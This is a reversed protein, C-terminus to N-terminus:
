IEPVPLRALLAAAGGSSLTERFCIDSEAEPVPLRVISTCLGGFWLSSELLKVNITYRHLLHAPKMVELADDLAPYDIFRDINQFILEFTYLSYHEVVGIDFGTMIKALEQVAQVTTPSRTNLRALVKARREELNESINASLAFLREHRPLLFTSATITLQSELAAIVRQTQTLETQEAQLLDDMPKMRRVRKPLMFEDNVAM